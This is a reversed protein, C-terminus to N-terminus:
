GRGAHCTIAIAAPFAGVPIPPGATNTATRIPTVADLTTIAEDVLPKAIGWASVAGTILGYAAGSWSRSSFPESKQSAKVRKPKYSLFVGPRSDRTTIASHMIELVSTCRYYGAQSCTV